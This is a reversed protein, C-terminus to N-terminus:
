SVAGESSATLEGGEVLTIQAEGELVASEAGGLSCTGLKLGALETFAESTVALLTTGELKLEVVSEPATCEDTTTVGLISCQVEWGPNGGGTHPFLLAAFFTTTDEMLEVEGEWPLNVPWLLPEACNEENACTLGEGVLPTSSIAAGALTLSESVIYLSNPEILGLGVGSCLIVVKGALPVKTDELLLEGISTGEAKLATLVEVGNALWVALLFTVASAPSAALVGLAFVM